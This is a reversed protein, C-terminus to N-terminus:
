IERVPLEIIYKLGNLYSEDIRIDGNMSNRVVNYVISLGLGTGGQNRKTTYFPEFVKKINEHDIGIGDDSFEIILLNEKLSVDIDIAGERGDFGHLASNSTLNRLLLSLASMDMQVELDHDCSLDVNFKQDMEAKLANMQSRIFPQIHIVQKSDEGSSKALLRYQKVLNILTDLNKQFMVTTEQTDEIFIQLDRKGLISSAFDDKVKNVELTLNSNLTNCVGLPTNMEHALAAVMSGLAALKESEVLQAQTNELFMMQELLKENVDELEKRHEDLVDLSASLQQNKADLEITRLAVKDELTKNLDKLEQTQTKIIQRTVRIVVGSLVLLLVGIGLSWKVWSPIVEEGKLDFWYSLRKYYISQNDSKWEKLYDDISDLLKQNEGKPAIIKMNIPNLQISTRKIDYDGECSLGFTRNVIGADLHGVEIGKLIDQKDSYEKYEASYGFQEITNKIGNPGIYHIDGEMVGIVKGDLDGFTSMEVTNHTYVQGWNVFGIEDNFNYLKSREESWAVGLMLDADGSEIMKLGGAFDSEIFELTWGEEKAVQDILDVFFGGSQGGEYFNMPRNNFVVVKVMLPEDNIAFVVSSNLLLFILIIYLLTRAKM